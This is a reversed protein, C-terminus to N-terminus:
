AQDMIMNKFNFNNKKYTIIVNYKDEYPPCCRGNSKPAIAVFIPYRVGLISEWSVRSEIPLSYNVFGSVSSHCVISIMSHGGSAQRGSKYLKVEQVLICAVVWRVFDQVTLWQGLNQPTLTSPISGHM